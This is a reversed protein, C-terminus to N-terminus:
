AKIAANWDYGTVTTLSAPFPGDDEKAILHQLDTVTERFTTTDAAFSLDARALYTALSSQETILVEDYPAYELDQPMLSFLGNEGGKSHALLVAQLARLTDGAANTM